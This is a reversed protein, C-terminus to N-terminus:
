RENLAVGLEDIANQFLEDDPNDRQNCMANFASDAVTRLRAVEAKLSNRETALDKIQNVLSDHYERACEVDATLRDIENWPWEDPIRAPVMM